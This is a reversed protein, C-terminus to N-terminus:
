ARGGDKKRRNFYEVAESLDRFYHGSSFGHCDKNHTHFVWEYPIGNEDKKWISLIYGLHSEKPDDFYALCEKLRTREDETLAIEAAKPM